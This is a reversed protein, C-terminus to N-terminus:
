TVSSDQFWKPVETCLRPLLPPYYLMLSSKYMWYYLKSGLFFLGKLKPFPTWGQEECEFKFERENIQINLKM